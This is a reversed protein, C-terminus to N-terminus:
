KAAAESKKIKWQARGELMGEVVADLIAKCWDAPERWWQADRWWEGEEIEGSGGGSRIAGSEAEM